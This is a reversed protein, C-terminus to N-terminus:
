PINRKQDKKTQAKHAKQMKTKPPERRHDQKDRYNLVKTKEDDRM